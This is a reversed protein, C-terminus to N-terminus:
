YHKPIYNHSEIWVESLKQILEEYSLQKYNEVQELSNEFDRKSIFLDTPADMVWSLDLWVIVGVISYPTKHNYIYLWSRFAARVEIPKTIDSEKNQVSMGLVKSNPIINGNKDTVKHRQFGNDDIKMYVFKLEHENIKEIDRLLQGESIKSNIPAVPRYKYVISGIIFIIIVIIIGTLIKRKNKNMNVGGSFPIGV